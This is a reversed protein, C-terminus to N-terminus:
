VQYQDRYAQILRKVQRQQELQTLVPAALQNDYTQCVTHAKAVTSEASVLAGDRVPRVVHTLLPAVQNDDGLWTQLPTQVNTQLGDITTPTLDVLDTLATVVRAASDGMGFPLWKTVDEFWQALLVLFSGATGVASQLVVDLVQYYVAVKAVHESLWRRGSELMPIDNELTDLALRGAALADSVTPIDDILDDMAGTVSNIGQEITTSVDVGDLQEYLAVLGALVGMRENAHDLETRLASNVESNSGTAQEYSDVRRLAADLEARLRVNEAQVSALQSLDVGHVPVAQQAPLAPIRTAAPLTTQSTTTFTPTSEKRLLAAGAGVATAGVATAAFAKLFGRRNPPTQQPQYTM